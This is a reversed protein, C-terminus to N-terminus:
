VLVWALDVSAPAGASTVEMDHARLFEQQHPDNVDGVVIVSGVQITGRLYIRRRDIFPSLPARGVDGSV